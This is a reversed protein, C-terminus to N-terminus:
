QATYSLVIRTVASFPSGSARSVAELASSFSERKAGYRKKLEKTKAVTAVASKDAQCLGEEAGPALSVSVLGATSDFAGPHCPLPVM